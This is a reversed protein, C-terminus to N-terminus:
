MAAGFSWFFIAAQDLKDCPRIKIADLKNRINCERDREMGSGYWNWIVEVGNWVMAYWKWVVEM